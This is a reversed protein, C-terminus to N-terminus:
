SDDNRIASLFDACYERDEEETKRRSIKCGLKEGRSQLSAYKERPGEILYTKTGSFDDYLIIEPRLWFNFQQVIGELIREPTHQPVELLAQFPQYNRLTIM